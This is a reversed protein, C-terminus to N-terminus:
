WLRGGRALVAGDPPLGKLHATAEGVTFFSGTVVIPKGGGAEEIARNLAEGVTTYIGAIDLGADLAASALMAAPATRPTRCPALYIDAEVGRLSEMIGIIDKDALIGLVVSVRGEPFNNELFKVLTKMSDSNHASDLIVAPKNGLVELRGPWRVESLGRYIADDGVDLGYDQLFVSGAVALLANGAQHVGPLASFLRPLRRGAYALDFCVGNLDTGHVNLSVDKDLSIFRGGSVSIERRLIDTVAGPQPVSIATRGRTLIGAKERAITERGEGLYEQHDLGILSILVLPGGATRTADLRGGMGAEIVAVDVQRRAFILFAMVTSWEFFTMSPDRGGATAASVERFAEVLDEHSVMDRDMVFRERYDVLHPSTYLGSHYGAATLIYHLMAATSGKGKTGAVHVSVFSKEPNGLRKLCRTINELGLHIGLSRQLPYLFDLMERYRSECSVTKDNKRM